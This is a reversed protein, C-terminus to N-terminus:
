AQRGHEEGDDRRHEPPRSRGDGLWSRRRSGSLIADPSAWGVYRPPAWRGSPLFPVDVIPDVRVDTWPHAMRGDGLAIGVHGWDREVGDVIGSTEFFVFAGPPPEGARAAADYLEASEKATSGGFVEIGNPLEYADEVFSLCRLGYRESGVQRLAWEVARTVIEETAVVEAM